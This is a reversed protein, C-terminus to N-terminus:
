RLIKEDMAVGLEKMKQSDKKKLAKLKDGPSDILNDGLSDVRKDGGNGGANDREFHSNM